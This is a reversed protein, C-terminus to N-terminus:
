QLCKPDKTNIHKMGKSDFWFCDSPNPQAPAAPPTTTAPAPPPPAPTSPVNRQPVPARRRAPTVVATSVAPSPDPAAAPAPPSPAPDPTNQAAPTDSPPPPPAAVAPEPHKKSAVFAVLVGVLALAGLAGILVAGLARKPGGPITRPSAASVSISSLQSHPDAVGQVGSSSRETKSSPTSPPPFPVESITTAGGLSSMLSEGKPNIFSMSASSEIEAVIEARQHLVESAIGEVWESVESGTAPPVCRELAIAMERATAFRLEPEASVARLTMQDLVQLAHFQESNLTPSNGSIMYRSPPHIKGELVKALLAGENDASFLREGTLM